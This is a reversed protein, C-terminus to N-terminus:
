IFLNKLTSNPTINVKTGAEDEVKLPMLQLRALINLHPRLHQFPSEMSRFRPQWLTSLQQNYKWFSCPFLSIHHKSQPGYVILNYLALRSHYQFELVLRLKHSLPTNKFIM